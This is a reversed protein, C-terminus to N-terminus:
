PETRKPPTALPGTPELGSHGSKGLQVDWRGTDAMRIRFVAQADDGLTPAWHPLEARQSRRPPGGSLATGVAVCCHHLFALVVPCHCCFVSFVMSLEPGAVRLSRQPSGWLGCM